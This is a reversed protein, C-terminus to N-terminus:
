DREDWEVMLRELGRGTVSRRHRVEQDPAIRLSPLRSSLVEISISMELRTLAAGVCHHIGHGFAMNQGANARSPDFTEPDDFVTEDHGASDQSVFVFAGAPITAGHLEIDRAARRFIGTAAGDYRLAEEVAGPIRRADAAVAPWHGGDLLRYISSGVGNPVTDNGGLLLASIQEVVDLRDLGQPTGDVLRGMLSAFDERPENIRATILRDVYALYELFSQALTRSIAPDHRALFLQFWAHVWAHVQPEDERPLGIFIGMLRAPAFTAFHAVLDARGDAVVLDVSEHMLERYRDGLKAVARPTFARAVAGRLRTHTPPDVNAVFRGLFAEQSGLMERVDDELRHAATLIGDSSFRENDALAARVDDYRTLVWAGLNDSYYLPRSQRLRRLFPYPNSVHWDSTVDYDEATAAATLTM